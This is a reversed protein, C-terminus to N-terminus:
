GWAALGAPPDAQQYGQGQALAGQGYHHALGLALPQQLHLQGPQCLGFWAHGQGAELAVLCWFSGADPQKAMLLQHRGPLLPPQPLALQHDRLSFLEVGQQALGQLHHDCGLVPILQPPGLGRGLGAQQAQVLPEIAPHEAGGVTGVLQHGQGWVVFGGQAM